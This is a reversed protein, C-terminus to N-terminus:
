KQLWFALGIAVLIGIVGAWAGIVAHLHTSSQRREEKADQEALWDYVDGRLVDRSRLGPVESNRGAGTWGALHLRVNAAGMSDLEARQEKSLTM